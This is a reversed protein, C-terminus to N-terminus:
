TVLRWSSAKRLHARIKVARCPHLLTKATKLHLLQFLFLNLLNTWAPAAPRCFLPVLEALTRPGPRSERNWGEGEGPVRCEEQLVVTAQKQWIDEHTWRERSQLKKKQRRSRSSSNGLTSNGKFHFKDVQSWHSSKPLFNEPRHEFYNM